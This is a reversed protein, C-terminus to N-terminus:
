TRLQNRRSDGLLSDLEKKKKKEIGLAQQIEKAPSRRRKNSWNTAEIRVEGVVPHWRLM